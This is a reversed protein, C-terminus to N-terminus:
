NNNYAIGHVLLEYEYSLGGEGEGVKRGQNTFEAVLTDNIMREDEDYYSVNITFPKISLFDKGHKSEIAAVDDMLMTIKGEHDISGRSVSHAHRGISRNKTKEQKTSYELSQVGYYIVGDINVVVDGVDFSKGNIKLDAM